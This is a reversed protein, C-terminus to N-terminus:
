EDRDPLLWLPLYWFPRGQEGLVVGHPLRLPYGRGSYMGHDRHWEHRLEGADDFVVLNEGMADSEYVGIWFGTAPDRLIRCYGAWTGMHSARGGQHHRFAERLTPDPDALDARALTFEEMMLPAMSGPVRSMAALWVVGDEVVAVPGGQPRTIFPTADIVRIGPGRDLPREGAELAPGHVLFLAQHVGLVATDSKPDVELFEHSEGLDSADLTALLKWGDTNRRYVVLHGDYRHTRLLVFAFGPTVAVLSHRPSHPVDPLEVETLLGTEPDFLRASEKPSMLLALGDELPFLGSQPQWQGPLTVTDLVDKGYVLSTRQAQIALALMGGGPVRSPWGLAGGGAPDELGDFVLRGDRERLVDFGGPVRALWAAQGRRVPYGSWAVAEPPPAVKQLGMALERRALEVGAEGEFVLAVAEPRGGLGVRAVLDDPGLEVRRPDQGEVEARVVVFRGVPAEFRLELGEGAMGLAYTPLAAAAPAPTAPAESGPRERPWFFGVAVLALATAGLGIRRLFAPRGAADSPAASPGAVVVLSAPPVVPRVVRSPPKPPPPATPPPPLEVGEPLRRALQARIEVMHPREAPDPDLAQLVLDAFGEGGLRAIAPAETPPAVKSAALAGLDEAEFARRGELMEFAMCALAYVDMSAEPKAGEFQEPAMYLPTGVFTGTRTLKEFDAGSALGFDTVLADRSAQIMVNAPKLDRHIVGLSHATEVASAVQALWRLADEPAPAEDQIVDGLDQGEVQPMVLFPREGLHGAEVLGMVHPHRVRALIEVERLFRARLDPHTAFREHLFKVAVALGDEARTAAWVVGCAGAGLPDGVQYRPALGQTLLERERAEAAKRRQSV